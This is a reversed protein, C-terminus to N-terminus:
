RVQTVGLLALDKKSPKGVLLKFVYPTPATGAHTVRILYTGGPLARILKEPKRGPRASSLLVNGAADRLDFDLNDKFKTLMSKIKAPETVTFRYQITGGPALTNRQIFKGKFRKGVRTVTGLEVTQVPDVLVAVEFTGLPQAPIFNGAGDGVANAAISITYTGNDTSDWTGGPPVISFSVSHNTIAGLTAAQSFGAPGTVVMAGALAQPTLQANDSFTASFSYSTAGGADVTGPPVLLVGLGGPRNASVAAPVAENNTM